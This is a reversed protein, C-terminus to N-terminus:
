EPIEGRKRMRGLRWNSIKKWRWVSGWETGVHKPRYWTGCCPVRYALLKRCRKAVEDAQQWEDYKRQYEAQLEELRYMPTYPPVNLHPRHVRPEINPLDCTHKGFVTAPRPIMLGNREDILTEAEM